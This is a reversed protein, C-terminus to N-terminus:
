GATTFNQKPSVARNGAADVSIVRYNYETGRKLGRLRAAHSRTLAADLPSTRRKRGPARYKVQETAPESTRWKIVASKRGVDVERIRTIRPPNRDGVSGVSGVLAAVEQRIEPLVRYLTEGPCETATWDRHGSINPATKTGGGAPNTFTSTAVPDLGHREAEWALHQVLAQRAPGPIPTSVYNGLIAIGMTGSNWGATHGGTVGLGNANEGTLTDQNKTDQPGSYRGKFIQGNSAVLFNYAIDCFDRNVVHHFYIARVTAAPDPDNNETVTHHVILKRTPYFTRTCKETSPNTFRLSEDAGWAPRSIVPPQALHSAEAEPQKWTLSRPGDTTNLALAEVDRATGRVQYADADGAPVLRSYTHGGTSPIEDLTVRTWPTWAGSTRFRVEPRDGGELWSVALFDLPFAPDVPATRGDLGGLARSSALTKPPGLAVAPLPVVAFVVALAAAM